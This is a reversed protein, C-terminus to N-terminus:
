GFPLPPVTAAASWLCILALAKIALIVGFNLVVSSLTDHFESLGMVHQSFHNVGSKVCIQLEWLLQSPPRGFQKLLLHFSHTLVHSAIMAIFAAMESWWPCHEWQQHSPWPHLALQHAEDEGLFGGLLLSLPPTLFLVTASKASVATIYSSWSTWSSRRCRHIPSRFM